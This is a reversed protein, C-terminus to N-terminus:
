PEWVCRQNCSGNVSELMYHFMLPLYNETLHSHITSYTPHPWWVLAYSSQRVTVRRIPIVPQPTNSRLWSRLRRLLISTSLTKYGASMFISVQMWIYIPHHTVHPQRVTMYIASSRGVKTMVLEHVPCLSVAASASPHVLIYIWYMTNQWPAEADSGTAAQYDNYNYLGGVPIVFDCVATTNCPWFPLCIWWPLALISALWM